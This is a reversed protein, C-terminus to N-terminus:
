FLKGKLYGALASLSAISAGGLGGVVTGIPGFITGLASGTASYGALKAEFNSGGAKKVKDEITKDLEGAVYSGGGILGGVGAGVAASLGLTEVDLPASGVLGAGVGSTIAAALGGASGAGTTATFDSAGAKKLGKYTEFASIAGAGGSLGSTILGSTALTTGALQALALDSGVQGLTGSAITKAEEPLRNNPDLHNVLKDAGYGAVLGIGLGIPNFGESIQGRIVGSKSGEENLVSTYEDAKKIADVVDDHYDNVIGMREGVDADYIENRESETLHFPDDELNKNLLAKEKDTFEGGLEKWAKAYRAKDHMRIFNNKVDVPSFKELFGTFSVKGQPETLTDMEISQQPKIQKQTKLDNSLKDLKLKLENARQRVKELPGDIKKVKRPQGLDMQTQKRINKFSGADHRLDELDGLNEYALDLDSQEPMFADKVLFRGGKTPRDLSPGLDPPGSRYEYEFDMPDYGTIESTSVPEGYIPDPTDRRTLLPDPGYNKPKSIINKSGDIYNAMDGLLVAEGHKAGKEVNDKIYDHLVDDKSRAGSETFNDMKHTAVPGKNKELPRIVNTKINSVDTKFGLGISPIDETTRYIDHNANSESARILNKGLFPNFSTTDVSFKDGVTMALTGGRSHGLLESVNGYKAKVKEFQDFTENFRDEKLAGSKEYGSLIKGNSIWDGLNNMKSGRYAIKVNEPNGVEQLVLGESTSLEDDVRYNIGNDELFDDTLDKDGGNQSYLTSAKVMLAKDRVENPISDINPKVKKVISLNSALRLQEARSDKEIKDTDKKIKDEVEEQEKKPLEGLLTLLFEIEKIKPYYKKVQKPDLGAVLNDLKLEEEDIFEQIDDENSM